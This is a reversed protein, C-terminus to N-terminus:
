RWPSAQNLLEFLLASVSFRVLKELREGERGKRLWDIRWVLDGEWCVEPFWPRLQTKVLDIWLRFKSLVNIFGSASGYYPISTSLRIIFRALLPAKDTM